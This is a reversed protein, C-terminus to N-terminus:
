SQDYLWKLVMKGNGTIKIGKERDASEAGVVSISIRKGIMQYAELPLSGGGELPPPPPAQEASCSRKTICSLLKRMIRTLIYKHM